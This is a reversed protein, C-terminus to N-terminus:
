LTLALIIEINSSWPYGAEIFAGYFTVSGTGQTPAEWEFSWTNLTNGSAKHTVSSGSNVLKTTNTNTIFFTGTKTGTADEECTVEFGNKPSNPNLSATITYTIGPVYGSSPINSTIATLNSTTALVSHCSTCDSNDSPSGTKGGPSGSSLSITTTPYFLLAMGVFLSFVYILAKM